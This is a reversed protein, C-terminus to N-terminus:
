EAHKSGNFLHGNHRAENHFVAQIRAAAIPLMKNTYTIAQMKVVLFRNTKMIITKMILSCKAVRRVNKYLRCYYYRNTAEKDAHRSRSHWLPVNSM